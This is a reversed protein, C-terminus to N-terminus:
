GSCRRKRRLTQQGQSQQPQHAHSYWPVSLGLEGSSHKGHLSVIILSLNQHQKEAIVTSGTSPGQPRSAWLRKFCNSM